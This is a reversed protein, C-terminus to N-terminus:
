GPKENKYIKQIYFTLEVKSSKKRRDNKKIFYASHIKRINPDLEFCHLIRLLHIFRGELIIKYTKININQDFFEYPQPIDKLIVDDTKNKSIKYILYQKFNQNLNLGISSNLKDLENRLQIVQEPANEIESLIKKFSRNSGYLQITKKITFSYAFFIFFILAAILIYVKRKYTM